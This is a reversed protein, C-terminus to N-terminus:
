QRETGARIGGDELQDIGDAEFGEPRWDRFRQDLDASFPGIKRCEAL